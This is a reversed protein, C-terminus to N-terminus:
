AARRVYRHHLGGVRALTVIRGENPPEVARAMPADGDLSMHPRDENYYQNAYQRVLHLLHREGLVIVHDLLECRLTGVFREAYANQWPARPAIRLQRVGLNNVRADFKAGYIGDRDRILRVISTDAGVAEVIQQAAWEAYPHATVNVHLVRRRELSLVFFVYLVNFTVSPVTLFDIAITGPLHVRVFQGWTVSPRRGPDRPRKPIYKAVTDKSVDHGLKALESAICRRSWLPNEAAMREILAVIESALPPRGSRKSKKAWFHAFGRRHWGVVTAPKVIALVDTWRSWTRSLVVWFTRDTPRLRPRPVTRRLVALQHRLALNEVILGTKLRFASLGAGLVAKLFAVVAAMNAARAALTVASDPGAKSYAPPHDCTRLMGSFGDLRTRRWLLIRFSGRGPHRDDGEGHRGGLLRV